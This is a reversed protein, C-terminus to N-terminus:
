EYRGTYRNYNTGSNNRRNGYLFKRDELDQKNEKKIKKIKDKSVIENVAEEYKKLNM